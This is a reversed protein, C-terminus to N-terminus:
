SLDCIVIEKLRAKLRVKLELDSKTFNGITLDQLKIEQYRPLIIAGTAPKLEEIERDIKTLWNPLKIKGTKENYEILKYNALDILIEKLNGLSIELKKSLQKIDVTKQEEILSLIDITSLM